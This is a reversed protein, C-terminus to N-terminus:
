KQKPDSGDDPGLPKDKGPKMPKKEAPPPETPDPMNTTIPRIM